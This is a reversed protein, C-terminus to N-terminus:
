KAVLLMTRCLLFGEVVDMMRQVLLAFPFTLPVHMAVTPFDTERTLHKRIDPIQAKWCAHSKHGYCILTPYVSRAEVWESMRENFHLLSVATGQVNCM